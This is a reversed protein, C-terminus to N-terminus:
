YRKRGSFDEEDWLSVLSDYEAPMMGCANVTMSYTFGYKCRLIQAANGMSIGDKNHAAMKLQFKLANIELAIEKIKDNDISPTQKIEKM